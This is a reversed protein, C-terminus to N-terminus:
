DRRIAYQVLGPGGNTLTREFVMGLREMVRVSAENPTDAQAIVRPLGVVEFAHSLVARGCETAHGAGWHQPSLLYLLEVDGELSRLAISGIIESEGQLRIAWHCLGAGQELDSREIFSTVLSVDALEDDFLWRRVDAHRFLALLPETDGTRIPRLEHRTTRLVFDM